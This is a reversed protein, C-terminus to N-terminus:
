CPAVDGPTIPRDPVIVVYPGAVVRQYPTGRRELTCVLPAEDNGGAVLVWVSRPAAAVAEQAARDRFVGTSAALVRDDSQYRLRMAVWYDAWVPPDGLAALADVAPAVEVPVPVGGQTFPSTSGPRVAALGVAGLVGLGAVAVVAAVPRRTALWGLVVAVFPGVFVLYRGEGVFWSNPFAALLFPFGVVAALVASRPDALHRPRGHAAGAVLAVLVAVYIGVGLPLWRQEYIVRAGLAMPLGETAFTRLHDLYSGQAVAADAKLSVLGHRLNFALWPAAGVAFSVAALWLNALSRRGEPRGLLVLLLWAGFPVAAFV